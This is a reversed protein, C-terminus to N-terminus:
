SLYKKKWNKYKERWEPLKERFKNIGYELTNKFIIDIVENRIKEFYKEELSQEEEDRSSM